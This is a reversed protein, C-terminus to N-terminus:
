LLALLEAREPGGPEVPPLEHRRQWVAMVRDTVDPDTVIKGPPDLLNFGRLFARFVVPDTRVAPILGERMLSRLFARPDVAEDGDPDTQAAGLGADPDGGAAVLEAMERNERDQTVAARYWPLVERRSAAEYALAQAEPDGPHESLADALLAAQVLALSSGRGYLPNTCTHADGVAFLGLVRPNGHEDLFRRRRNVLGGMVFVETTPESREPDVWPRALPISEAARVFAEPDHLKKRLDGDGTRVALTLSFTHDDGPFLGVKLYGLDIAVPGAAPPLDAGPRLRFFRTLYVIGTDEEEEPLQVGVQALWEPLASRRGGAVVVLPAHAVTGDDLRLGTITPPGGDAGPEAELGAAAVGDVLHVHPEATVIRRLVWEFTTRRCALAVLDDDGDRPEQDEMTEPLTDTFRMETAGEALLAELVDPYRDRLLNRLRALFAHSHRVQPAGRRDWAFAAGADAPLPTDDRELLTVSRGDRGLALATGLGGIGAGVVLVDAGALPGSTRPEATQSESM